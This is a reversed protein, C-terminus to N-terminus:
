LGSSTEVGLHLAARSWPMGVDGEFDFESTIFTLVLLLVVKSSWTVDKSFVISLIIELKLSLSSCISKIIFFLDTLSFTSKLILDINFIWLLEEWFCQNNDEGVWLTPPQYKLLFLVM